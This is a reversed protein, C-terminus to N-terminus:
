RYRIENLKDLKLKRAEIISIFDKEKYWSTHVDKDDTVSYFMGTDKRIEFARNDISYIKNRILKWSNDESFGIYVVKDGIKFKSLTTHKTIYKSM